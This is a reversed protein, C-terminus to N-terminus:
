VTWRATEKEGLDMFLKHAPGLPTTIRWLFGLERSPAPGRFPRFALGPYARPEVAMRPVLTIGEGVAAMRMVSALSSGQFIVRPDDASIHCVELSQRRFCHGEQLILLRENKLDDPGVKAKKALPHNKPAALFFPERGLSRSVLGREDIPLALLGVDVRGDKLHEILISTTLEHVEVVLRPAKPRLAKLLLPLIYPAMTPIAAVRIRGSVEHSTRRVEESAGDLAELAAAARAIFADGAPTARVRRSSREFLPAGLERELKKIQQSLTPQSVHTREAARQFHKERHLAVAYRLQQLEM